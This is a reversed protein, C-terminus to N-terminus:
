SIICGGGVIEKMAAPDIWPSMRKTVPNWVNPELKNRRQVNAVFGKADVAPHPYEDVTGGFMIACVDRIQDATLPKEDLMDLEKISVGFQRLLHLPEGYAFWKNHAYVEQAESVLDDLIELELELQSDINNWYSVVKSEDTCLRLVVWVPLNHLPKLAAAVDGDSSEGDTCIIVAAKHGNARLQPEMAQIQATIERIHRCLPTAGAPGSSDLIQNLQQYSFQDNPNGVVIPAANNLMRFETIANSAKALGAHFKVVDVLEKWRTCPQLAVKDGSRIIRNGDSAGMSGSDDIIMFRIPIRSMSKMLCDQLGKPWKNVTLYERTGAENIPIM